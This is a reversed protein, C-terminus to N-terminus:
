ESEEDGLRWHPSVEILPCGKPRGETGWKWIKRECVPNAHIRIKCKSCNAPMEMDPIYVGM